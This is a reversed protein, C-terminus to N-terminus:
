SGVRMYKEQEYPNKEKKGEKVDVSIEKGLTVECYSVSHSEWAESATNLRDTTQDSREQGLYDRRRRTM